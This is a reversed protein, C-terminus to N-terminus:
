FQAKFDFVAGSLRHKIMNTETSSITSPYLKKSKNSEADTFWIFGKHLFIHLM